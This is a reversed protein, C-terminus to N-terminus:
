YSTEPNFLFSELFYYFNVLKPVSNIRILILCLRLVYVLWFFNNNKKLVFVYVLICMYRCIIEPRDYHDEAVITCKLIRVNSKLIHLFELVKGTTSMKLQEERQATDHPSLLITKYIIKRLFM